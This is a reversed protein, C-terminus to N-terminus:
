HPFSLDEWTSPKLQHGELAAACTETLLDMRSYLVPKKEIEERKPEIPGFPVFFIGNKKMLSSIRSLPLALINELATILVLPLHPENETTIQELCGLLIESDPVLVLLDLFPQHSLCSANDPGTLSTAKNEVIRERSEALAPAFIDQLKEVIEEKKGAPDLLIIFVEAGAFLINKIEQLIITNGLQTITLVFGIKKGQLLM